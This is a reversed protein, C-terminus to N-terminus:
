SGLALHATRYWFPVAGKPLVLPVIPTSSIMSKKIYRFYLQYMLFFPVNSMGSIMVNERYWKSFHYMLRSYLFPVNFETNKVRYLVQM